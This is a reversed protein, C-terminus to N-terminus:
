SGLKADAADRAKDIQSGHGGGSKADAVGEAKDLAADSAKEGKDSHLADKAMDALGGM